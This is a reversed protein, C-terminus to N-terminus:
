PHQELLLVNIVAFVCHINPPQGWAPYSRVLQTTSRETRLSGTHGMSRINIDFLRQTSAFIDLIPQHPSSQPASLSSVVASLPRYECLSSVPSYYECQKRRIPPPALSRLSLPHHTSFRNKHHYPVKRISPNKTTIYRCLVHNGTHEVPVYSPLSSKISTSPNWEIPDRPSILM